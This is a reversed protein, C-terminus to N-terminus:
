FFQIELISPDTALLIGVKFPWQGSLTSDGRQAHGLRWQGDILQMSGPMHIEKIWIPQSRSASKVTWNNSQEHLGEDLTGAAQITLKLPDDKTPFVEERGLLLRVREGASAHAIIIQNNSGSAFNNGIDDFEVQNNSESLKANIGLHVNNNEIWLSTTIELKPYRGFAWSNSRDSLDVTAIQFSNFTRYEPAEDLQEELNHIRSQLTDIENNHDTLKIYDRSYISIQGTLERVSANFGIGAVFSTICAIALVVVPHDKISRWM